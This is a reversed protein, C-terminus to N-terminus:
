SDKVARCGVRDAGTGVERVTREWTASLSLFCHILERLLTLDGRRTVTAALFLGLVGARPPPRRAVTLPLDFCTDCRRPQFQCCRHRPISLRPPTPPQLPPLWCRLLGILPPPPSDVASASTLRAPPPPAWASGPSGGTPHHWSSSNLRLHLLLVVPLALPHRLEPLTTPLPAQAVRPRAAGTLLETPPNASTSSDQGYTSPSLFHTHCTLGVLVNLYPSGTKFLKNSKM